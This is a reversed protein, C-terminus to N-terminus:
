SLIQPHNTKLNVNGDTSLLGNIVGCLKSYNNMYELPIYKNESVPVYDSFFKLKIKNSSESDLCLSVSKSGDRAFNDAVLLYGHKEFLSKINQNWKEDDINSCIKTTKSISGDGLLTGFIYGIEYDTQDFNCTDLRKVPEVQVCDGLELEDLRLKEVFKKGSKKRQVHYIHAATGLREWANTSSSAEMMFLVTETAEVFELGRM